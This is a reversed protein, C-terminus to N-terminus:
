AAAALTHLEVEYGLEKLGRVYRQKLRESDRKVFYDGGLDEYEKEDRLIYYAAVLITRGVAVAARKKGRRVVLRGYQAALYSGKQRAGAYAAGTLARRLWKNGGPRKGSKRKGASEQNGPSMGAWSACHDADPFQSMEPGLEALLVQATRLGVGAIGDLRKLVAEFPRMLEELRADFAAVEGELFTLQGLLRELLWRQHESLRGELSAVLAARKQKLTGRALDALVEADAEGASLAQLMLRGSVGLIDAAVSALKINGQELTKHIRNVVATHQDTLKTRQRTLDRWERIYQAPVFSGRLLGCQMLQAIWEADTVDTKRGPVKKLHQANCLVLQFLECLINWVPIWYVGTSEMAVHTIGWEQLWGALRQLERTTSGFKAVESEVQHGDALLRRRCAVISTQHVDLGAVAPYIVEMVVRKM